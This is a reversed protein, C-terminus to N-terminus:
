NSMSRASAAWSFMFRCVLGTTVVQEGRAPAEGLKLSTVPVYFLFVPIRGFPLTSV